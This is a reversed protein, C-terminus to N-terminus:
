AAEVTYVGRQPLTTHGHLEYTREAEEPEADDVAELKNEVDMLFQLTSRLVRQASKVQQKAAELSARLDDDM